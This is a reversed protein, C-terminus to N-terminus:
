NACSLFVRFSEPRLLLIIYNHLHGILSRFVNGRALNSSSIAQICEIELRFMHWQNPSNGITM